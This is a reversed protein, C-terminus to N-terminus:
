GGNPGAFKFAGQGLIREEMTQAISLAYKKMLDANPGTFHEAITQTFLYLWREFHEAKLPKRANLMLHKYMLGGKYAGTRFLINEWFDHITPLHNILDLGEFLFGIQDDQTAKSYFNDVVTAIDPRSAIDM